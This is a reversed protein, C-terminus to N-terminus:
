MLGGSPQPALNQAGVQEPPPPIEGAQAPALPPAPQGVPPPMGGGYAQALQQILPHPPMQNQPGISQVVQNSLVSMLMKTRQQQRTETIHHILLYIAQVDREPDKRAQELQKQHAVLHGQDDDHPNPHISDDGELMASWEEDPTKLRDMDPPEPIVATFDEMGMAKSVRNLLSWLAKPNTMVLPNQVALTYFALMKQSQAEKSWHSAAFKLRFDYRGAFEKPTMYAGGQAVDFLGQAQEETVRFFLGPEKKPVLSCDLEWFDTIIREMDERLITADLYARINGEEILALQGTATRPANPREISRGLSQDTISTVREALSLTDQQKMLAYELNPRLSVVNIEGPAESAYAVGPELRFNGPNLNAAGPKYFIIPWISLEGAATLMRSNATAENELDELMAGFGMSWYTGDKVLSSEVFPRRRHMHPYLVLLDQCGVIERMGPIFRVVLDAEYRERKSLDDQEGDVNQNKLPRWKGYWEHVWLSRRGGFWTDYNVGEAAETEQRVPDQTVLTYDNASGSQQAYKIARTVFDQDSTGQFLKGDQQQLYDVTYRVRRIVFSFDQISRVGREPPVVIDDLECPQFGPGEYDMVRMRQGDQIIEFESEHWPRYAISRGNLIRRFQFEIFSNLIEMQDFLRSTMYRGVKAVKSADSPGTPRATIEADDGFLAQVDRALKNFVQWRILPVTNNPKAEDGPKPPPVRDQWKQMWMRARECRRQHASKSQNFDNEIRTILRQKERDSLPIQLTKRDDPV